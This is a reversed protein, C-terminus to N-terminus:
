KIIQFDKLGFFEPLFKVVLFVVILLIFGIITHTIKNKAGAAKEKSDGALLLDFAGLIFYFVLFIGALMFAPDVLHSIGEGLSQLDGFAFEKALDTSQAYANPISM